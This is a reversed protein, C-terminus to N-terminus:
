AILEGLEEKLRRLVRSKSQRVTNPTMGLEAAVEAPSRNEMAVRWFAQWTRTEFQGQVLDLARQYLRSVEDDGESLEPEDASGPVEHLRIMASTGGEARGPNYRRYDQLKHRAIGRVWARFSAEPRDKQYSNLGAAVGAFVEQIVDQVAEGQLGWQRCWHAVLPTYLTVLRQWADPERAAANVLLSQSTLHDSGMSFVEKIL